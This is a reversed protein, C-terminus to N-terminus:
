LSSTRVVPIPVRAQEAREWLRHSESDPHLQLQRYWEGLAADCLAMTSELRVRYENPRARYLSRVFNVDSHIAVFHERASRLDPHEM